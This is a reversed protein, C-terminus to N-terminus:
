GRDGHHRKPRARATQIYRSLTAGWVTLTVLMSSCNALSREPCLFNSNFRCLTSTDAECFENNLKNSVSAGVRECASTSACVAHGPCYSHARGSDAMAMSGNHVTASIVDSHKLGAESVVFGFDATSPTQIFRAEHARSCQAITTCRPAANSRIPAAPRTAFRVCILSFRMQGRPPESWECFRHAKRMEHARCLLLM